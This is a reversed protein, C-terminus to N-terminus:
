EYTSITYWMFELTGIVYTHGSIVCLCRIINNFNNIKRWLNVLNLLTLLLLQVPILKLNVRHFMARYYHSMSERSSTCSQFCIWRWLVRHFGGFQRLDIVLKIVYHQVGRGSRSEFECCWHHYASIAYTTKFGVVMRDHGHCGRPLCYPHPYLVFSPLLYTYM